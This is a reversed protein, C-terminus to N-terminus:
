LSQRCVNIVTRHNEIVSCHKSRLEAMTIAARLRIKKSFTVLFLAVTLRHVERAVFVIRKGTHVV